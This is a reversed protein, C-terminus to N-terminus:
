CVVCRLCCVDFFMSRVVRLLCWVVLLMCWPVVCSMRCVFFLLTRFSLCELVFLVCM